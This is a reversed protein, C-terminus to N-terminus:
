SAKGPAMVARMWSDGGAHVDSPPPAPPCVDECPVAARVTLRLGCGIGHAEPFV